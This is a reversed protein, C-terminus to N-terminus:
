DGSQEQLGRRERLVIQWPRILYGLPYTFIHVLRSFPYVALLVFFNFVHLKIMFPLPAVLDPQPRLTALSWLYPTFVAGFWYSGFRYVVATWIGTIISILLLALVVGDMPSTVVQIRRDSLRRWIL